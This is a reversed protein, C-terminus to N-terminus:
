QISDIYGLNRSFRQPLKGVNISYTEFKLRLIYKKFSFGM